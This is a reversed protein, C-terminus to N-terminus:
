GAAGSRESKVTNLARLFLDSPQAGSIAYKDDVVFFPVGRVGVAAGQAKDGAVAQRYTGATLAALAADRDLGIEAALDALDADRGVHRGESFYARLLREKMQAEKGHDKAFHILEHAKGTNTVKIDDLHYDLGEQAALDTIQRDMERVQQPSARLHKALYEAHNGPYEAPATPDLEYSHYEIQVPIADPGEAFQSLATELRRKGIYCWPCAIDSWIDIKIPDAM